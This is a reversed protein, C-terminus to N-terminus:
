SWQRTVVLFKDVKPDSGKTKKATESELNWSRQNKFKHLSGTGQCKRKGESYCVEAPNIKKGREGANKFSRHGTGKVRKGM